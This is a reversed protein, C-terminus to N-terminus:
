QLKIDTMLCHWILSNHAMKIQINITCTSLPNKAETIYKNYNRSIAIAIWAMIELHDALTM